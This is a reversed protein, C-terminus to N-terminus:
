SVKSIKLSEADKRALYLADSAAFDDFIGWSYDREQIQTKNTNNAQFYPSTNQKSKAMTKNPKVRENNAVKNEYSRNFEDLTYEENQKNLAAKNVAQNTQYAASEGFAESLKKNQGENVFSAGAKPVVDGTSHKGLYKNLNNNKNAYRLIAIIGFIIIVILKM